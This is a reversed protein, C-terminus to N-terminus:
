AAARQLVVIALPGVSVSEGAAVSAG